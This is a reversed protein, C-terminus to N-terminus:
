NCWTSRKHCTLVNATFLDATEYLKRGAKGSKKNVSTDVIM